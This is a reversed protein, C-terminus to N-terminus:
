AICQHSTWVEFFRVDLFSWAPHLCVGANACLCIKCVQKEMAASVVPAPSYAGMGGTNPGQDGDFAAKHDQTSTLALVQSGDLFAFFSAEEGELFEEIVVEKGADGFMGGELIGTVANRAEEPTTCVIVGKGAALGAAKVVLPGNHKNIHEHAPGVSTFTAYSATPIGYKKCLNQMSGAEARSILLRAILVDIVPEL